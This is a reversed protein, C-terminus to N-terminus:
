RAKSADGITQPDIGIEEAKDGTRHVEALAKRWTPDTFHDRGQAHLETATQRANATAIVADALVRQTIWTPLPM